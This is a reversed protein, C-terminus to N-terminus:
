KETTERGEYIVSCVYEYLEAIMNHIAKLDIYDIKFPIDAPYRTEIYMRNMVPTMDLWGLIKADRKGATKCLWTINHGDVPYGTKFLIFAKLAKEIAQQLHFGIANACQKTGLLLKALHLDEAAYELWDYYHCSDRMGSTQRSM